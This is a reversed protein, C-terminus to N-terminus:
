PIQPLGKIGSYRWFKEEQIRWSNKQKNQKQNEMQSSMERILQEDLYSIYIYKYLIYM